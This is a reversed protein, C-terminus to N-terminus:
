RSPGIHVDVLVKVERARLADIVEDITRHQYGVTLVARDSHVKLDVDASRRGSM